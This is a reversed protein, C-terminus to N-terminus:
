TGRKVLRNSKPSGQFELSRGMAQARDESRHLDALGAENATVQTEPRQLGRGRYQLARKEKPLVHFPLRSVLLGQVPEVNM